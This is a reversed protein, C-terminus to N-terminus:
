GEKALVTRIAQAITAADQVSPSSGDAFTAGKSTKPASPVAPESSPLDVVSAMQETENDTDNGNFDGIDPLAVVDEDIGKPKKEASAAVSAVDMAKFGGSDQVATKEGAPATNETNEAPANSIATNENAPVPKENAPASPAVPKEEAVATKEENMSKLNNSVNFKPANKIETLKEDSLTIDVIGGTKPTSPSVEFEVDEALFKTFIVSIGATMGACVAACILAHLFLALPQNRSILGILLSLVFGAGAAIGMFKPNM